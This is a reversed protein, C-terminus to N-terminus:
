RNGEREETRHFLASQTPPSAMDFASNNMLTLSIHFRRLNGTEYNQADFTWGSCVAFALTTILYPIKISVFLCMAMAPSRVFCSTIRDFLFHSHRFEAEGNEWHCWPVDDDVDVEIESWVCVCMCVDGNRAVRHPAKQRSVCSIRVVSMLDIFADVIWM